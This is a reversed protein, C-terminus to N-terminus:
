GPLGPPSPLALEFWVTKGADPEATVGWRTALLDVIQLGRGSLAEPGAARKVPTGGGYDTVEVRIEHPADHITLDFSSMVHRIANTALESVMLQIAELADPATARLAETAFTRAAPISPPVAPFSRAHTM